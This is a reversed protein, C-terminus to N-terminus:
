SDTQFDTKQPNKGFQLDSEIRLSAKMNLPFM